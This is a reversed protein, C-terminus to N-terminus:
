GAPRPPPRRGQDSTAVSRVPRSGVATLTRPVDVRDVLLLAPFGYGTRGGGAGGRAQPGGPRTASLAAPVRPRASRAAPGHPPRGTGAGRARPPQPTAIPTECLRVTRAWRRGGQHVSSAYGVPEQGPAPAGEAVPRIRDPRAVGAPRRTSSASAATTPSMKAQNATSPRVRRAMARRRVPARAGATSCRSRACAASTGPSGPRSRRCEAAPPGGAADSGRSRRSTSRAFRTGGRSKWEKVADLATLPGRGTIIATVRDFGFRNLEAAKAVSTPSYLPWSPDDIGLKIVDTALKQAPEAVEPPASAASRAPSERSPEARRRQGTLGPRGLIARM